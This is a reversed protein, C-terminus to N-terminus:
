RKSKMVKDFKNLADGTIFRSAFEPKEQKEMPASMAKLFEEKSNESVYFRQTFSTTAM